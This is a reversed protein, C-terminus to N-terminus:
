KLRPLLLLLLNLLTGRHGRPSALVALPYLCVSLSLFFFNSVVCRDIQKLEPMYKFREQLKERYEERKKEVVSKPGLKEWAKAKWIRVNGDDSGSLLYKDDM